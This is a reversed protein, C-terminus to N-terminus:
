QLNVSKGVFGSFETIILFDNRVSELVKCAGKLLEREADMQVNNRNKAVKERYDKKLQIISELGKGFADKGNQKDLNTKINVIFMVGTKPKNQTPEDFIYLDNSILIDREMVGKGQRILREIADVFDVIKDRPILINMVEQPSSEELLLLYNLKKINDQDDKTLQHFPTKRHINTQNVLAEITKSVHTNPYKNCWEDYFGPDSLFENLVKITYNYKEEEVERRREEISLSPKLESVCFGSSSGVILLDAIGRHINRNYSAVTDCYGRDRVHCLVGVDIGTVSKNKISDLAQLVKGISAPSKLYEKRRDTSDAFVIGELITEIAQDNFVVVDSSNPVKVHCILDVAPQTQENKEVLRSSFTQDCVFGEEVYGCGVIGVTLVFFTVLYVAGTKKIRKFM